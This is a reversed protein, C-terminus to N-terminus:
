MAVEMLARPACDDAYRCLRYNPLGQRRRKAREYPTAAPGGPGQAIHEDLVSLAVNSLLPSLISGQPTGADTDSLTGDEILIGAKLFAKVLALVRKDGIRARVRDM